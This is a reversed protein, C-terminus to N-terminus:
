REVLFVIAKMGVLKWRLDSLDSRKWGGPTLIGGSEEEESSARSARRLARLFDETVKSVAGLVDMVCVDLEGLGASSRVARKARRLEM